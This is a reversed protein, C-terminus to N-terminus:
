PKEQSHTELLVGHPQKMSKFMWLCMMGGHAQLQGKLVEMPIRRQCKKGGAGM